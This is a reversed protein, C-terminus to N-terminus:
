NFRIDRASAFHNTLLEKPIKKILKSTKQITCTPTNQLHLQFLFFFLPLSLPSLAGSCPALHPSVAPGQPSCGTMLWPCLASISPFLGGWGVWGPVDTLSESIVGQDPQSLSVMKKLLCWCSKM